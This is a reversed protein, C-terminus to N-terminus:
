MFEINNLMEEASVCEHLLVLFQIARGISCQNQHSYVIGAHEIGEADLRLFDEDFTVMVREQDSAFMLQEIDSAGRLGADSSNTTEIGRRILGEGNAGQIHEDLHYRIKAM